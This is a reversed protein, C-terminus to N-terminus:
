VGKDAASRSATDRKRVNERWFIYLGSAIILAAGQWVNPAPFDGWVAYGILTAWILSSYSFPAVVSAPANRFAKIICLHGIMGALGSGALLLWGTADPTSWYWPLMCSTVVAGFAATFLLSTRSDDSRVGRTAIQYSANTLAAALLFLIAPQFSEAMGKWPQVVVVAGAFGLAIGLWRRVGVQENLLVVSLLTTIIPTLFMITTATALPLVAIGANFLGTTVMLFVSRTMQQGPVKSRILQPLATGCWLAAFITAFFFRGWTVQVLSYHELGLKMLADLVIFCLMTALMWVIGLTMNEQRQDFPQRM